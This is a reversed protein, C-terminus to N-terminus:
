WLIIDHRFKLFFNRIPLYFLGTEGVGDSLDWEYLNIWLSLVYTLSIRLLYHFLGRVKWTGFFTSIAVGDFECVLTDWALLHWTVYEGSWKNKWWVNFLAMETTQSFLPIWVEAMTRSVSTRCSREEVGRDRKAGKDAMGTRRQGKTTWGQGEKGWGPADTGADARTLPLSHPGSM